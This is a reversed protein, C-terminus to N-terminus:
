MCRVVGSLKGSDVSYLVHLDLDYTVGSCQVVIM